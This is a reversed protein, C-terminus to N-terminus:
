LTKPKLRYKTTLGILLILPIASPAWPPVGVNVYLVIKARLYIYIQHGKFPTTGKGVVSNIVFIGQNNEARARDQIQLDAGGASAWSTGHEAVAPRTDNADIATESWCM